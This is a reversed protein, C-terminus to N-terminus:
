ERESTQSEQNARRAARILSRMGAVVGLVLGLLMLWPATGLKEDLWRGGLMGVITSISLEIGVSALKTLASLRRGGRSGPLV